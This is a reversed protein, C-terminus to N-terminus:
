TTPSCPSLSTREHDTARMPPMDSASKAVSRFTRKSSRSPSGSRIPRFVISVETDTGPYVSVAPPVVEAWEAPPGVVSLAYEEVRAGANRIRLTARAEGGPEVVLRDGDLVLVPNM